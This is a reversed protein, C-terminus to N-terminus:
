LFKHHFGEVWPHAKTLFGERQGPAETLMGAARLPLKPWLHDKRLIQKKEKVFIWYFSLISLSYFTTLVASQLGLTERRNLSRFSYEYGFSSILYNQFFINWKVKNKLSILGNYFMCKSFEQGQHKQVKENAFYKWYTYIKDSKVM